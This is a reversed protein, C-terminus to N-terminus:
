LDYSEKSPANHTGRALDPTSSCYRLDFKICKLKSIHCRTAVIKIKKFDISRIQHM